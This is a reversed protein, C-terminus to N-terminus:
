VSRRETGLEAFCIYLSPQTIDAKEPSWIGGKAARVATGGSGRAVSNPKASDATTQKSSRSYSRSLIKVPNGHEPPQRYGAWLNASALRRLLTPSTSYCPAQIPFQVPRSTRAAAASSSKQRLASKPADSESWWLQLSLAVTAATAATAAVAVSISASPEM